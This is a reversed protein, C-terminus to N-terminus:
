RELEELVLKTQLVALDLLKDSDIDPYSNSYNEFILYTVANIKEIRKGYRLRVEMLAQRFDYDVSSQGNNIVEDRDGEPTGRKHRPARYGM